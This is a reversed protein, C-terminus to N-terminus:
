KTAFGISIHVVFEIPFVARVLKVGREATLVFGPFQLFKRM